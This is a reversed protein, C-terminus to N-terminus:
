SRRRQWAETHETRDRGAQNARAVRRGTKSASGPRHEARAAPVVMDAQRGWPVVTAAREARAETAAGAVSAAWRAPQPGANVKTAEVAAAARATGVAVARVALIATEGRGAPAAPLAM